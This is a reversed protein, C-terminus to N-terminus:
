MDANVFYLTANDHKLKQLRDSMDNYFKVRKDLEKSVSPHVLIDGLNMLIGDADRVSYNNRYQSKLAEHDTFRYHPMEVEDLNFLTERVNFQTARQISSRVESINMDVNGLIKIEKDEDNIDLFVLSLYSPVSRVGRRANSSVDTEKDWIDVKNVTAILHTIKADVVEDLIHFTEQKQDNYSGAHSNIKPSKTVCSIVGLRAPVDVEILQNALEDTGSVFDNRFDLFDQTCKRKLKNKVCEVHEQTLYQFCEGEGFYITHFRDGKGTIYSVGFKRGATIWLQHQRHTVWRRQYTPANGYKKEYEAQEHKAQEELTRGQEEAREALEVAHGNNEAYTKNLVSSRQGTVRDGLAIYLFDGFQQPINDLSNRQFKEVTPELTNKTEDQATKLEAQCEENASKLYEDYKSMARGKENLDTVLIVYPYFIALV